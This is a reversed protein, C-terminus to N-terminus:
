KKNKIEETGDKVITKLEELEEKDIKGDEKAKIWWNKISKVLSMLGIIVTILGGIITIILSITQWVENTQLGTGIASISTGVSSGIFESKM